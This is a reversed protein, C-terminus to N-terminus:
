EPVADDLAKEVDHEWRTLGAAKGKALAEEKSLGDVVRLKLTLLSSARNGSSCHLLVKGEGQESLVAGLERAKEVTLDGPNAVTIEVYKLGLAEARAREEPLYGEESSSRVNIVTTVGAAAVGPLEDLTPQGSTIVGPVAERANQVAVPAERPAGTEAGTAADDGAASTPAPDPKDESSACGALGVVVFSALVPWLLLGFVPGPASPCLHARM